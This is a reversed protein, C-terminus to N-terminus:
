ETKRRGFSSRSKRSRRAGQARHIITEEISAHERYKPKAPASSQSEMQYEVLFRPSKPPEAHSLQWTAQRWLEARLVCEPCKELCQRCCAPLNNLRITITPM